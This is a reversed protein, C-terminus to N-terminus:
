YKGESGGHLLVLKFSHVHQIQYGTNEREHRQQRSGDGVVFFLRGSQLQNRRNCDCSGHYVDGWRVPDFQNLQEMFDHQGEKEGNDCETDEESVDECAESLTAEERVLTPVKFPRRLTEESCVEKAPNRTTPLGNQQPPM